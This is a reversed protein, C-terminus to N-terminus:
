WPVGVVGYANGSGVVSVVFVDCYTGTLDIEFPEIGAPVPFTENALSVATTPVAASRSFTFYLIASAAVPNWVQLKRFRVGSGATGITVTDAVTTSLTNWVSYSAADTAM